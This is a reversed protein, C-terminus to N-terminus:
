NEGNIAIAAAEGAPTSSSGWVVSNGWIVSYGSTASNGWVVSNGWIVSQGSINNGWLSNSRNTRTTARLTPIRLQRL